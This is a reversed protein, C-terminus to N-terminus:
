AAPWTILAPRYHSTSLGLVAEVIGLFIGLVISIVFVGVGWNRWANQVAVFQADDTFNRGAVAIENGKVGCWIAMGLCALNLLPIFSLVIYLIGLGVRGHNMLWFPCLLFGGWNWQGIFRSGPRGVM